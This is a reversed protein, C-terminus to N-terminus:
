QKINKVRVATRNGNDTIGDLVFKVYRMYMLQAFRMTYARQGSQTTISDLLLDPFRRIMKISDAVGSLNAAAIYQVSPDPRYRYWPGTTASSFIPYITFKSSDAPNFWEIGITSNGQSELDIYTTTDNATGLIATSDLITTNTAALCVTPALMALLALITVIIQKM